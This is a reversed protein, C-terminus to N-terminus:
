PPAQDCARAAALHAARAATAAQRWDRIHECDPLTRAIANYALWAEERAAELEARTADRGPRAPAKEDGPTAEGSTGGRDRRSPPSTM